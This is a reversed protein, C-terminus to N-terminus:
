WYKRQSSAVQADSVQELKRVRQHLADLESKIADLKALILEVDRQQIGQEQHEPYQSEMQRSAISGPFPTSQPYNQPAFTPSTGEPNFTDPQGMQGSHQLPDPNHLPDYQQGGLDYSPPQDAPKGLDVSFDDKKWFKIKDFVGM